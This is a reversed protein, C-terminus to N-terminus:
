EIVSKIVFFSPKVSYHEIDCGLLPVLIIKGQSNEVIPWIERDKIPIKRDIFWRNVKKTGLRLRIEDKPQYSRIVLPFDEPKVTVAETSKGSASIRFYSTEIMEEKELVVRYSIEKREEVYISQYDKILQYQDFFLLLNGNKRCLQDDWNQLLPLSYGKKRYAKQSLYFRLLDTREKKSLCLYQRLSIKGDKMMEEMENRQSEKIQNLREIEKCLRDMEEENMVDIKEHRIRNRSYSDSFNSEDHHFEVGKLHCYDMLQQKTKDLLPRIILYGDIRREKALGFIETEMNRMKQFLYTEISDEKHHAILVGKCKEQDILNFFFQYRVERAWSQFNGKEYHPYLVFFPLEHSECYRRVCAEDRDATSRKRYNVHAVIVNLHSEAAMNLLAMSDPGGSVGIVWKGKLIEDELM